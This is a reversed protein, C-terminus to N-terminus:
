TEIGHAVALRVVAAWDKWSATLLGSPATGHGPMRPGIVYFGEELLIEATARVSYPSDTLGHVLIATGIPESRPRMEFSRNWNIQFQTPNTRSRKSYRNYSFHANEPVRQMVKADLEKFVRTELELYNQWDDNTESKARFEQDFQAAHWPMLDPKRTSDVARVAYIVFIIVVLYTVLRYIYRTVRRLWTNM